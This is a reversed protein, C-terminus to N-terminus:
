LGARDEIGEISVICQVVLEGREKSNQRQANEIQIQISPRLQLYVFSVSMGKPLLLVLLQLTALCSSLRRVPRSAVEWCSCGVLDYM